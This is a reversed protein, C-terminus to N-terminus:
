FIPSPIINEEKLQNHFFKRYTESGSLLKTHSGEELRGDDKLFYIRDAEKISCLRHSIIITSMAKRKERLAQFIKEETYSDVSSTAEDLILIDPNRLVARAIAIRQQLGHSLQCADEGIFSDYGRPLTIIFDHLSALKAAREIDEQSIGRLGYAINDRISVDFLLPKQTAIAIRKRLSSLKIEKLEVGDLLIAGQSPDYLRLILNVLTTKGCGSPGVISVWSFPPITLRLGKFITKEIQYGFWIDKFYIEGKVTTLCKARPHDKIYPEAGMIELFRELSVMNQVFYEFRNSLSQVLGGLQTLYLMAATYTGLTITGKIILWGGYLTIGGYIAKSLFSAGISSVIFWRFSKVNWRINDILSKLYTHRKYSELGFAKIVLIRSFSECIDKSVLAGYRWIKEYIPKLKKQLYASQIIFLPSLIVLFITMQVNIWLSIGLIIPLKFIDVLISPCQEVIFNTVNSVDSLRYVNEGISKDQFFSLDLSYLKRVFRNALNLKLRISVRNKVVDGIVRILMSFIFLIVGFISLNLFKALNKEIFAKDIFLKSIYPSILFFSSSVLALFALVFVEKKYRLIFELIPINNTTFKPM